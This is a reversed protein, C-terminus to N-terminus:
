PSCVEEPAHSLSAPFSPRLISTETVFATGWGLTALAVTNSHHLITDGDRVLVSGHQGIEISMAVEQDAFAQAAQLLRFQRTLGRGDVQRARKLCSDIAWALNIAMWREAQLLRAARQIGEMALKAGGEFASQAARVLGFAAAAGIAPAGGVALARIAEAVQEPSALRVRVLAEPLRRQDIVAVAREAKNREVTRMVLRNHGRM